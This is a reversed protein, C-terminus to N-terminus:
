GGTAAQLGNRIEEVGGPRVARAVEQGDRLFILTPWLKVRFSRGLRRGPGDEVKIHPVEPLDELVQRIAGQAGTCIPCWNTGFELVLPGTSSAIDEPTPADASYVPTYM